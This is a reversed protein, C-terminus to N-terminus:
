PLEEAALPQWKRHGQETRLLRGIGPYRFHPSIIVSGDEIAREVLAKKTEMSVLPLIDFSSVWATRELQPVTQVLDGIYIAKEGGSALVVAGHGDSHGPLPVVTIEDTIRREGDILELRGSEALPLLNEELYTARTRENPHTAAEWEARSIVYSANMFTPKLVGDVERTNWGCHDLHLHTNIVIDVDAPAIGLADLEALLNGDAAPSAQRRGSPKDGVGTEILVLKGQSQLVVCNLGLSLRHREDLPGVLPEWMIRPVIGYVAGADQFFSGDSVIALDLAGLRYKQPM